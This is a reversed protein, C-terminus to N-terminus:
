QAPRNEKEERESRCRKRCEGLAGDGLAAFADNDADEIGLRPLGELGLEIDAHAIVFAAERRTGEVGVGEAHADELKGFVGAAEGDPDGTRAIDGFDEGPGLVVFVDDRRFVGGSEIGADGDAASDTVFLPIGDLSGFDGDLTRAAYGQGDLLEAELATELRFGGVGCALPGAVGDRWFEFVESEMNRMGIECGGAEGELFFEPIAPCGEDQLAPLPKVADDEALVIEGDSARFDEHTGGLKMGVFDLREGVFMATEGDVIDRGALFAEGNTGISESGFGTENFDAVLAAVEFKFEIEASLNGAGDEIRFAIGDFADPDADGHPFAQLNEGPVGASIAIAFEGPVGGRVVIGAVVDALFAEHFAGCGELVAFVLGYAEFFGGAENKSKEDSEM